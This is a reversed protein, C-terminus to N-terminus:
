YFTIRDTPKEDHCSNCSGNITKTGMSANFSGDQNILVPYFGGKFDIIKNTYFNGHEDIALKYLLSGTRDPGTWLEVSGTKVTKNNKYATGGINWWGESSAENKNDNHCSMCNQGPNHSEDDGAMSEKADKQLESYHSCATILLALGFTIAIHKRMSTPLNLNIIPADPM